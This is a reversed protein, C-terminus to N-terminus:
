NSLRENKCNQLGGMLNVFKRHRGDGGVNGGGVNAVGSNGQGGNGGGGNGGAGGGICGGGGAHGGIRSDGGGFGVGDFDVLMIMNNTGNADIGHNDGFGHRGHSGSRSRNFRSSTSLAFM